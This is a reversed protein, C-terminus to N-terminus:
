RSSIKSCKVPFTFQLYFIFKIHIIEFSFLFCSRLSYLLLQLFAIYLRSVKNVNKIKMFTYQSSVCYVLFIFHKNELMMDIKLLNSMGSMTKNFVLIFCQMVQFITTGRKSYYIYSYSHNCHLSVKLNFIRETKVATVTEMILNNRKPTFWKLFALTLSLM